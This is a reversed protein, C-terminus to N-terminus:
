VPFSGQPLRRRLAVFSVDAAQMIVSITMVCHEEQLSCPRSGVLPVVTCVSM